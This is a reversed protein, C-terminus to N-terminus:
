KKFLKLGNSFYLVVRNSISQNFRVVYSLVMDLVTLCPLLHGYCDIIILSLINIKLTSVAYHVLTLGVAEHDIVVRYDIFTDTIQSIRNVNFM